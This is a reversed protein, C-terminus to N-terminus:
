RAVRGAVRFARRIIGLGVNTKQRQSRLSAIGYNGGEESIAEDSPEECHCKGHMRHGECERMRLTAFFRTCSLTLEAVPSDREPHGGPARM